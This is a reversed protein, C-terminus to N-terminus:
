VGDKFILYTGDFTESIMESYLAHSMAYISTPTLKKRKRLKTPPFTLRREPHQANFFEESEMMAYYGMLTRALMYSDAINDDTFTEGTHETVLDLYKQIDAKLTGKKAAGNNVCFKKHVGPPIRYFSYAEGKTPFLEFLTMDVHGGLEGLNFLAAGKSGFSYEERTGRIEDYKRSALFEIIAEEIFKLRYVGRLKKPKIVATEIVNMDEDLLCMGSASLSQDIGFYLISM